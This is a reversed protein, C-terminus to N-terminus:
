LLSRPHLDRERQCDISTFYLFIFLFALYIYPIIPVSSSAVGEDLPPALQITGRTWANFLPQELFLGYNIRGREQSFSFYEIFNLEM